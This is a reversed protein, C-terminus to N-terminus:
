WYSVLGTGCGIDLVNHLDKPIPAMSLKKDAQIKFMQHQLDLRDQEVEDNPLM